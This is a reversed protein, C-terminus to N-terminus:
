TTEFADELAVTLLLGLVRTEGIHPRRKHLCDIVLGSGGPWGNRGACCRARGPCATGQMILPPGGPEM